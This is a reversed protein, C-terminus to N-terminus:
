SPRFVYIMERPVNQLPIAAIADISIRTDDSGDLPLHDASGGRARRFCARAPAIMSCSHIEVTAISVPRPGAPIIVVILVNSEMTFSM